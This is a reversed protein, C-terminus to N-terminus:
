SRKLRRDLRDDISLLIDQLDNVRNEFHTLRVDVDDGVSAVGVQRKKQFTFVAFCVLMVVGFMTIGHSAKEWFTSRTSIRHKRETRQVVVSAHGTKSALRIVDNADRAGLGKAEKIFEVPVGAKHLRIADNADFHHLGSWHGDKVYQASVGATHLKVVDKTDFNRLGINRTDKVYQAPVGAHHLAIMDKEDFHRLHHVGAKQMQELYEQTVGARHLRLVDNSDFNRFGHVRAAKVYSVKVKAQALKIVDDVDFHRLQVGKLERVYQPSVGTEALKIIDDVDLGRIGTAKMDRIYEISVKENAQANLTFMLGMCLLFIQTATTRM